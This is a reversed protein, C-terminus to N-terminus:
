RCCKARWRQSSWPHSKGVISVAYSLTVLTRGCAETLRVTSLFSEHTGRVHVETFHLGTPVELLMNMVDRDAHGNVLRLQGGFRGRPVTGMGPLANREAMGLFGSLSLDDLKPLQVLIDRIQTLTVTDTEITLSTLSQPLRGLLPIWSLRFRGHGLWDM